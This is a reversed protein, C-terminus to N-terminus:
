FEPLQRLGLLALLEDFEKRSSWLIEHKGAFEEAEKTLGEHAFLWMRIVDPDMDERVTDAQSILTKLIEVGMKRGQVWKSQCVWKETGAAGLVDIERGEGSGLRTRHRIYTFRFPM